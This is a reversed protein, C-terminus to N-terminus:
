TNHVESQKFANNPVLATTHIMMHVESQKFADNSVLATTCYGGRGVCVCVCWHVQCRVNFELM